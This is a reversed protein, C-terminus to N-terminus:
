PIPPPMNNEDRLPPLGRTQALTPNLPRHPRRQYRWKKRVKIEEESEAVKATTKSVYGPQEQHKQRHPRRKRKKSYLVAWTTGIIVALLVAGFMAALEFLKSGMFQKQADLLEQADVDALFPLFKNMVPLGKRPQAPDENNDGEATINLRQM